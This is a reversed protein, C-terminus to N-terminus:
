RTTRDAEASQVLTFGSKIDRERAYGCYDFTGWDTPVRNDLVRVTQIEGECKGRLSCAGDCVLKGQERM